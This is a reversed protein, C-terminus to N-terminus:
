IMKVGMFLLGLAAAGMIGGMLSFLWGFGGATSGIGGAAVPGAAILAVLVSLVLFVTWGPCWNALRGLYAAAYTLPSPDFDKEAYWGYVEGFAKAECQNMGLWRGQVYAANVETNKAFRAGARGYQNQPGPGIVNRTNTGSPGSVVRNANILRPFSMDVVHVMEHVLISSRILGRLGQPLLQWSTFVDDCLFMANQSGSAFLGSEAGCRQNTPQNAAQGLWITTGGQRPTTLMSVIANSYDVTPSGLSIPNLPGVSPLEGVISDLDTTVTDWQLERTALPTARSQRIDYRSGRQSHGPVHMAGHESKDRFSRVTRRALDLMDEMFNPNAALFQADVATDPDLSSHADSAKLFAIIPKRSKELELNAAAEHKKKLEEV